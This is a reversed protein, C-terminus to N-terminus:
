HMQKKAYFRALEDISGAGMFITGDYGTSKDIMESAQAYSHALEFNGEAAILESNVGEIPLERAPYVPLLICKDSLSLAKAFQKYFAQTRTYTHPEFVTLVRNYIKKASLLSCEIEYPHHAYDSIYEVGNAIGLSEFRRDVGKFGSIGSFDYGMYHCYAIAAIANTVNHLGRVGLEVSALKKGKYYATFRYYGRSEGEVVAYYDNRPSLGFTFSQESGRLGRAENDGCTFVIKSQATFKEFADYFNAYTKFYDAHDLEVNLVIAADPYLSLFSEKYECAETIFLDKGGINGSTGCVAGGVHVTPNLPMLANMLMATTTTKGHTGSVAVLSKYSRSIRGLLEARSLVPIGADMAAAFEPNNPSIAYSYVVADAGIINRADHGGTKLDSGTIEIGYNKCLSALFEM